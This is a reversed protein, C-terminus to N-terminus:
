FNGFDWWTSFGEPGNGATLDSPLNGVDEVTAYGSPYAWLWPNNVMFSEAPPVVTDRTGGSRPLNQSTSSAKYPPLSADHGQSPDVTATPLTATVSIELTPSRETEETTGTLTPSTPLLTGDPSSPVKSSSVNCQLIAWMLSVSLHIRSPAWEYETNESISAIRAMKDLLRSLCEIAPSFSSFGRLFRRCKAFDAKSKQRLRLDTACSFYLHVTAAIAAAHGFFPDLLIVDKDHVMDITRVIWTAHLLVLESSKRWFTNPIALIPHCQSAVIYLFPHNIMTLISHWTFQLKLWPMWYDRDAQVENSRRENFKVIHYRHCLPAKNEIETLDALVKAYTSDLRWPEILKNQSCETVYERVRGWVWGFHMSLTWIGIDSATSAGDLDLPFETDASDSLYFPRWDETATRLIGRQDGYFQELSQLSWFVRKEREATPNGNRPKPLRDWNASRCLQFGLGLYFQGLHMDGDIFASYSLLCLSEITELGPTSNAMRLMISWRAIEGYSQSDHDRSFRATLELISCILETSVETNSEFDHRDFCWIPQRHFREFYVDLGHTIVSDSINPKPAHLEPMPAFSYKTSQQEAGSPHHTSSAELNANPQLRISASPPETPRGDDPHEPAYRQDRCNLIRDVKKELDALRDHPHTEDYVCSQNLRVCTSCTPRESPCRAKKKRCNRCAQRARLRERNPDRRM